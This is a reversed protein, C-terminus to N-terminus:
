LHVLLHKFQIEEALCLYQVVSLGQADHSVVLEGYTCLITLAHVM